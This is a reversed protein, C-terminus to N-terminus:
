SAEDFFRKGVFSLTEVFVGRADVSGQRGTMKLGEIQLLVVGSIKDKIVAVLEPQQLLKDLKPQWGNTVAAQFAVRFMSATFTVTTGIEAHEDPVLQDIGQITEINTQYNFSCQSAYAVTVSGIRLELKAGTAVKSM